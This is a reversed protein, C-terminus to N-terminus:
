AADSAMQRIKEQDQNIQRGLQMEKPESNVYKEYEEPIILRVPKNM